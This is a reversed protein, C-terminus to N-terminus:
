EAVHWYSAGNREFMFVLKEEQITLKEGMQLLIQFVFFDYPAHSRPRALLMLKSCQQVFFCFSMIQSALKILFSCNEQKKNFPWQVISM